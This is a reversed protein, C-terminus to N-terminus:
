SRGSVVWQLAPPTSQQGYPSFTEIKGQLLHQNLSCQSSMESMVLGCIKLIFGPETSLQGPQPSCTVEHVANLFAPEKITIPFCRTVALFAVNQGGKPKAM